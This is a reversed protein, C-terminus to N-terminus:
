ILGGDLALAVRWEPAGPLDHSSDFKVTKGTRAEIVDQAAHEDCWKPTGTSRTAIDGCTWCRDAKARAAAAAKWAEAREHDTVNSLKM